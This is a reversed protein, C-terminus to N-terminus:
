WWCIHGHPQAEQLAIFHAKYIYILGIWLFSQLVFAVSRFRNWSPTLGWKQQWFPRAKELSVNIFEQFWKRLCLMVHVDLNFEEVAKLGGLAEWFSEKCPLHVINDALSRCLLLAPEVPHHRNAVRMTATNPKARLLPSTPGWVHVKLHFNCTSLQVPQQRQKSETEWITERNREM